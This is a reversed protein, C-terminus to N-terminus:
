SNSHAKAGRICITVYDQTIPIEPYTWLEGAPIRLLKRSPSRSPNARASIRRPLFGVSRGGAAICVGIRSPPRM